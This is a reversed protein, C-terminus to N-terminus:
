ATLIPALPNRLEHSLMALFEDKTRNAADADERAQRERILSAALQEAVERQHLESQRVAANALARATVDAGLM